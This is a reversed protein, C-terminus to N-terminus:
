ASYSPSTEGANATAFRRLETGSTRFRCTAKERQRGKVDDKLVVLTSSESRERRRLVGVV